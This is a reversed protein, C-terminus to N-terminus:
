GSNRIRLTPLRRVGVCTLSPSPLSPDTIMGREETPHHLIIRAIRHRWRLRRRRRRRRQRRRPRPPRTKNRSLRSESIFLKESINYRNNTMHARHQASRGNCCRRTNKGSILSSFQSVQSSIIFLITPLYADLILVKRDLSVAHRQFQRVGFEEKFTTTTTEAIYNAAIIRRAM